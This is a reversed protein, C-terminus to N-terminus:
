LTSSQIYYARLVNQLCILRSVSTYHRKIQITIKELCIIFYVTTFGGPFPTM